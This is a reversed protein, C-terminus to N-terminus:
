LKGEAKLRQEVRKCITYITGLSFLGYKNMLYRAAETKSSGPVCRMQEFDLYINMDREERHRQLETKFTQM